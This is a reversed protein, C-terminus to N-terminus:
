PLLPRVSSGWMRNRIEFHLHFDTSFGSNGESGIVTKGGSVRTGVRVRVSGQSLHGYISVHGDNHEIIVRNGYGGGCGYDGVSDRCSNVTDKVVGDKAARVSTYPSAVIDIGTHCKGCFYADCGCAGYPVSIRGYMPWNPVSYGPGSDPGGSYLAAEMRKLEANSREWEIQRQSLLQQYAFEQGRTEVLLGNRTNRQGSLGSEKIKLEDKKEALQTKKTEQEKKDTALASKVQKIEAMTNEIKGEVAGLYETQDLVQSINNSSFLMEIFSTDTEQYIVRLAENLIQKQRKLEKEKQAIQTNLKTIEVQALDIETQTKNISLQTQRIQADMSSVQGALTRREGSKQNLLKQQQDIQSQINQLERQKDQISDAATYQPFLFVILFVYLVIKSMTQMTKTLFNKLLM